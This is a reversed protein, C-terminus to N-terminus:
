MCSSGELCCCDLTYIRYVTSSCVSYGTCGLDRLFDKGIFVFIQHHSYRLLMSVSLTQFILVSALMLAVCTWPTVKLIVSRCLGLYALKSKCHQVTHQAYGM